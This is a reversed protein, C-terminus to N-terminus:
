ERFLNLKSEMVSLQFSGIVERAYHTCSIM